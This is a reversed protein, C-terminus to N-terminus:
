TGGPNIPRQTPSPIGSPSTSVRSTFTTNSSSSVKTVPLTRLHLRTALSLLAISSPKSRPKTPFPNFLELM